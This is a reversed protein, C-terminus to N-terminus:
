IPGESPTRTIGPFFRELQDLGEDSDSESEGGGDDGEEDGAPNTSKDGTPEPINTGAGGQGGMSGIANAIATRMTMLARMDNQLQQKHQQLAAIRGEIDRNEQAGGPIYWPTKKDQLEKIEKNNQEIQGKIGTAEKIEGYNDYKIVGIADDISKGADKYAQAQHAPNPDQMALQHKYYLEKMRYFHKADEAGLKGLMQMRGYGMIAAKTIM